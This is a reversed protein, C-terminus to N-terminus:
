RQPRSNGLGFAREVVSLGDGNTQSSRDFTFIPKRDGRRGDHIGINQVVLVITNQNSSSRRDDHIHLCLPGFSDPFGSVYFDVTQRCGGYVTLENTQRAGVGKLAFASLAGCEAYPEAYANWEEPGAHEAEADFAFVDGNRGVRYEVIDDDVIAVQDFSFGFLCRGIM